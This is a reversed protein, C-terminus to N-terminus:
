ADLVIVPDDFKERYIDWERGTEFNLQTEIYLEAKSGQLERKRERVCVYM